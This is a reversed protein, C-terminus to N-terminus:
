LYICGDDPDGRIVQLEAMLKQRSKTDEKENADHTHTHKTKKSDPNM